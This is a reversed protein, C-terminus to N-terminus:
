DIVPSIGTLGLALLSDNRVGLVTRDGIDDPQNSPRSNTERATKVETQQGSFASLQFSLAL